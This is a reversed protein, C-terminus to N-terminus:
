TTHRSVFSSRLAAIAVRLGSVLVFVGFLRQLLEPDLATAARAGAFGGVLGGAGLVAAARLSIRRNRVNVVTGAAATLVIALASTGQAVQQEFSLFLVMAPVMVVGGGVGAMGSAIGATLGVAVAFVVEM